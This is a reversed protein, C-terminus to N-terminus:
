IELIIYGHSRGTFPLPPSVHSRKHNYILGHDIRCRLHKGRAQALYLASPRTPQLLNLSCYIEVFREFPSCLFLYHWSLWSNVSKDLSRRGTYTKNQHTRKSSDSFLEFMM